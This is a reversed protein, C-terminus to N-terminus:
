GAHISVVLTIYTGLELQFALESASYAPNACSVISDLRFAAWLSTAYDIQHNLCPDTGFNKNLAPWIAREEGQLGKGAPVRVDLRKVYSALRWLWVFPYEGREGLVGGFHGEKWQGGKGSPSLNWVTRESCGFNTPSDPEKDINKRHALRHAM